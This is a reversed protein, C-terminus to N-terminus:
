MLVSSFAARLRRHVISCSSAVQLHDLPKMHVAAFSASANRHISSCFATVKLHQQKQM